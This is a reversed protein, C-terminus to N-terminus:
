SGAANSRSALDAVFQGAVPHDGRAEEEVQARREGALAAVQAGAGVLELLVHGVARHQLNQGRGGVAALTVFMVIMSPLVRAWIM